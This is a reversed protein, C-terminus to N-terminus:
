AHKRRRVLGLGALAAGLLSLAGPAPVEGGGPEREGSVYFLENTTGDWQYTAFGSVFDSYDCHTFVSNWFRSACKFNDSTGFDSPTPRADWEDATAFRWGDQIGPLFLENSSFFQAAVPSAWAWLLGNHEIYHDSTIPNTDVPIAQAATVIGLALTATALLHTMKTKM